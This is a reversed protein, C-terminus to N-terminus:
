DIRISTRKKEAKPLKIELVGNSMSATTNAGDVDGPLKLVKRFKMSSTKEKKREAEIILHNERVDIQIDKKDIGPLDVTVIVEGERDLMEAYPAFTSYREGIPTATCMLRMTTEFNHFPDYVKM